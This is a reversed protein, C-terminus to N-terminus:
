EYDRCQKRVAKRLIAQFLWLTYIETTSCQSKIWLDPNWVWHLSLHFSDFHTKDILHKLLKKM